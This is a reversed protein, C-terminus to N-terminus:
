KKVTEKVINNNLQEGQPVFAVKGSVDKVALIKDVIREFM